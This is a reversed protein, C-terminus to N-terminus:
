VLAGALGGGRGLADVAALWGRLAGDEGAGVLEAGLPSMAENGLITLQRAGASGEPVIRLEAATSFAIVFDGSGNAGSSGTRALGLIARSALRKLNRAVLPADTAVM